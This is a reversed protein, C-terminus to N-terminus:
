FMRKAMGCIQTISSTRAESVVSVFISRMLLVLTKLSRSRNNGSTRSHGTKASVHWGDLSKGDFLPIWDSEGAPKKKEGASSPALSFGAVAAAFVVCWLVRQM